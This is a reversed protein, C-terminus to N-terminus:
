NKNMYYNALEEVPKVIIRGVTFGKEKAVKELITKFHFAISGIFNVDHNKHQPYAAINTEFFETFGKYIMNQIYSHEKHDSLFKAFSALFVNPDPENYTKRIADEKSLNYKEKFAKELDAPLVKYISYALLKRGFYSGSAEDGLIYGLGHVVPLLDKGDFFCTNSGTGLICVIGPKNNCAALAAGLMDHEVLVHAATFFQRLGNEIIKNRDPSSCGAGFFYVGKVDAAYKKLDKDEGLAKVVTAADHFFPNFGMTNFEGIVKKNDCLMWDAKTSGSDCVLFM